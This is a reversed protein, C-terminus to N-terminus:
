CHLLAIAAAAAVSLWRLGGDAPWRRERWPAGSMAHARLPDDSAACWRKDLESLVCPFAPKDLLRNVRNHAECMWVSLEARSNM